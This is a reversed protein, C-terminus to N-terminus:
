LCRWSWEMYEPCLIVRVDSAMHVFNGKFQRFTSEGVEYIFGCSGVAQASKGGAAILEVFFNDIPDARGIKPYWTLKLAALLGQEGLSLLVDLATVVGPQLVDGRWDFPRVEVDKFTLTWNPGRILVQPIITRNGHNRWRAVEARFAAYLEALRKADERFFRVRTGDKVPYLDMRVANSEFGGGAYHAEYWWGSQGNLDEIVHTAMDEAFRYTLRIAGREGLHVLLDFVSFHGQQFVDPRVTRVASAEVTFNGVGAISVAIRGSPKRGAPTNERPWWGNEANLEFEQATAQLTVGALVGVLTGLLLGFLRPSM